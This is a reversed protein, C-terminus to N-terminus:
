ECSESVVVTAAAAAEQKKGEMLKQRRSGTRTEPSGTEVRETGISM